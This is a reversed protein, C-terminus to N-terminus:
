NNAEAYKGKTFLVKADDMRAHANLSFAFLLILLARKMAPSGLTVPDGDYCIHLRSMRRAFVDTKARGPRLERAPTPRAPQPPLIFSQQEVPQFLTECHSMWRQPFDPFSEM